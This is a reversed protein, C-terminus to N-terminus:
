LSGLRATVQGLICPFFNAQALPFSSTHKRQSQHGDFASVAREWGVAAEAERETCGTGERKGKNARSVALVRGQSGAPGSASTVEGEKSLSQPHFVVALM